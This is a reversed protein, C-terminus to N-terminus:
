DEEAAANHEDEDLRIKRREYERQSFTAKRVAEEDDLSSGVAGAVTGLSASLWSLNVYEGFGVPHGLEAALFRADIIVLSGALIIVFLALYMLLIATFITMLTAVNYVVRKQAHSAGLPSEWLGNHLVLWSGMILISLLSITALRQPSLFDAMTWISTYFVGFAGTALAAAMASSLRPVLHWPRNSRVMGVLLLLRGRAGKATEFADDDVEPAEIRREVLLPDSKLDVRGDERLYPDGVGHLSALVQVVARVLRKRRVFGLTPLVIVAAGYGANFSSALPEGDEFKPLDTLYVLYDWHNAERLQQSHANLEVEGQKALPLSFEKVDVEWDTEPDLASELLGPLSDRLGLALSIPLGPDAILGIVTRREAEGPMSSAQRPRRREPVEPM